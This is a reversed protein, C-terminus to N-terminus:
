RVDDEYEDDNEAANDGMEEDIFLIPNADEVQPYSLDVFEKVNKPVEGLCDHVHFSSSIYDLRNCLFSIPIGEFQNNSFDIIKLNPM